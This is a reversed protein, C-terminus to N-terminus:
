GIASCGPATWPRMRYHDQRTRSPTSRPQVRLLQESVLSNTSVSRTCMSDRGSDRKLTRTNGSTDPPARGDLADRLM